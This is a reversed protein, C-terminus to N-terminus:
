FGNDNIDLVTTYLEGLHRYRRRLEGEDQDEAAKFCYLMEETFSDLYALLRNSETSGLPYKSYADSFSMLFAAQMMQLGKRADMSVGVGFLHQGGLNFYAEKMGLKFAKETMAYVKKEEQPNLAGTCILIKGLQNYGKPDDKKILEVTEKCDNDNKLGYKKILPEIDKGFDLQQKKNNKNKM